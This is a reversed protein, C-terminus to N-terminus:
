GCMAIQNGWYAKFRGKFRGGREATFNFEGEVPIGEEVRWFTVKGTLEELPDLEPLSYAIGVRMTEDPFSFTVPFTFSPSQWISITITTIPDYRFSVTFATGDWPACDRNITAPFVQIAGQNRTSFTFLAIGLILILLSIAVFFQNRSKM